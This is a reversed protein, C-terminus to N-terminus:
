TSEREAEGGVRIFAEGLHATIDTAIMARTGFRTAALDGALGHLYVAAITAALPDDPKQALLGAIVGTLVDGTGGTAMGANGTPNVYVEADPAAILTRSGKLVLIVQHAAAFDRAVEVRHHIVDDITKGTLRAMEGPHPTLILPHQRSGAVNEAWPVLANLADADLVVPRERQVVMARVFARTTEESSGLGPGMAVVDRAAALELARETAERSIAGLATEPMPETMCEVIGRAAVVPQSSEPTAITVLGAGSRMAAEGVMCAAGTKGRSGAIVLVKGADGKNAQPSRRSATLWQEIDRAEVLNLQSGTADILADPSGIHGVVLQGGTECAPPLVNAVKPATFTVTLRARVAPGILEAADSAIGSPVDVAVVPAREGLANIREIAEAFLGAAPRTLGTGFIADIVLDPSNMATADRLQEASAVEVLRLQASAAALARVIEFNSRADGRTDDVRGLLLVDVTAGQSALLRAVAAGDGGNNGKGCFVLARRGTIAGFTKEVAEVTRAAANEMLLAGPVNYRETTLRDVERMQEATLIKM